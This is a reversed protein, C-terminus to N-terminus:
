KIQRTNIERILRQRTAVGIDEAVKSWWKERDVQGKRLLVPEQLVSIRQRYAQSLLEEYRRRERETMPVDVGKVRFTSKYGPVRLGIRALKENATDGLSAQLNAQREANLHIIREMDTPTPERKKYDPSKKFENVVKARNPINLQSFPQGGIKRAINDMKNLNMEYESEPYSNLGFFTFM